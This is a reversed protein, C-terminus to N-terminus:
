KQSRRIVLLIDETKAKCKTTHWEEQDLLEVASGALITFGCRSCKSTLFLVRNELIPSRVFDSERHIHM